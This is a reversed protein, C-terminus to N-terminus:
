QISKLAPKDFKANYIGTTFMENFAALRPESKAVYKAIYSLAAHLSIIPKKDVNARWGQLQIHCYPNLLLDNCHLLLKPNNHKNFQIITSDHLEKPYGFQCEELKTNKN